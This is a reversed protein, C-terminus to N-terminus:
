PSVAYTVVGHMQALAPSQYRAHRQEGSAITSQRRRGANWTASCESMTTSAACVLASSRMAWRRPRRPVGSSSRMVCAVSACPRGRGVPQDIEIQRERGAVAGRNLRVVQEVVELRRELLRAQWLYPKVVQPMAAGADQKGLIDVQPDNHFDQTM